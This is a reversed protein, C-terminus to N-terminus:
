QYKKKNKPDNPDFDSDFDEDSFTVYQDDVSKLLSSFIQRLAEAIVSLDTNLQANSKLALALGKELEIIRKELEEIKLDSNKMEQVIKSETDKEIM